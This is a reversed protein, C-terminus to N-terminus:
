VASQGTEDVPGAEDGDTEEGSADEDDRETEGDDAM